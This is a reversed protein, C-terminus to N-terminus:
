RVVKRGNIVYVGQPLHELSEYASAGRMVVNGNMDYVNVPATSSLTEISSIASSISLMVDDAKLSEGTATYTIDHLAIIGQTVAGSNAELLITAVEGSEDSFLANHSSACLVRLQGDAMFECDFLDTERETTRDTSLMAEAYGYADQAVHWGAPLELDFQFGSFVCGQNDAGVHLLYLNDDLSELMMNMGFTGWEDYRQPARAPSTGLIISAIKSLDGVNIDEDQNANAAKQIFRSPTHGLIHAATASLDGVNVERDGNADGLLYSYISLNSKVHELKVTTGDDPTLVVNKLVIPYTGAVANDAVRVKVTCIEGENGSIIANRNSYALLRLTGDDQMEADFITARSNTRVETLEADAYGYEDMVFSVGEPLCIDGQFGTFGKANKLQVSLTAEQGEGIELDAIYLVNDVNDLKTADTYEQINKFENWYEAQQYASKYGTPVYLTCTSTLGEFPGYFEWWDEDFYDSCEPINDSVYM